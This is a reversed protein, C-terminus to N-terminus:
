ASDQSPSDDKIVYGRLRLLSLAQSKTIVMSMNAPRDVLYGKASYPELKSLINWIATLLMRCVAIIAKKHGRRAKLRRYREKCEPYKDSKVVANAVQVLLPKLYVGARSIRTSKCKGGSQDNRPCCGAWSSLNKATPFVSMDAGIESLVAIATMPDSSFGPVTRILELLQTYPATLRLIEAEINQKHAQIEDIHRLIERLKAAQERSVSGDVAAQIEEIPHKCRGDVFPAVDFQEGPHDLIYATISRASKGFVDSFVDDLKLNSVTLCNQARNKEGTLFNTLKFRYRMMERLHRIDPPPIFSPKIMDCMFLDCIWKADKRDTKNGKQPKTYKPHALTVWCTKELINFVPIWYKGSSEMCVEKCDHKALWDALEHLGKSFSSFRAQNYETRGNADTIGICAYIWTKHVDLGCCNKRFIKFM